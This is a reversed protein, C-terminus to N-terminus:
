PHMRIGQSDTRDPAQACRPRPRAFRPRPPGAGRIWLSNGQVDLKAVRPGAQVRRGIEPVRRRIADEINASLDPVEIRVRDDAGRGTQDSVSKLVSRDGLAIVAADIAHHRHDERTKRNDDSLIGNLRWKGRLLATLGGRNPVIQEVGELCGLYHVASRAIYANDTLQRAVFDNEGEFRVMADPGFRWAKNSPLRQALRSVTEWRIGYKVYADSAFAEHPTRNGKLRNAWRLAVTLNAMSDDLTRKFPLLHEIEADGNLLQAFSIPKGSFPCRRALETEGLEEWLRVKKVDLASPVTIRHKELEDRIRKNEREERAQRVTIEDRQKRSRKLNRSLEVHIEAPPGGFRAILDNVVRRLSNLAVHVTPNNIKGFHVEPQSSSDATPDGGLMSGRLIEGYYPLLERDGADPRHSHHLPTGEDDALEGVAEWYMLGQDQMVPVIAEMFRRSVSATARSLRLKGLAEIANRELGFVEALRSGFTAPDAEEQLATFIDDLVGGDGEGACRQEWLTTLVPDDSLMKAIGHNRLGKRKGDEYNFRVCDPFLLSGDTRKQKRLSDFKVESKRTLLLDLVAVCQEADLPHEAFNEDFWKLSNLEQYIRFDHGIPTDRWHRQEEPFFECRGREVPKLPWQFLVYRDRLRKWDETRLRHHPAQRERIADFEAAYMSRDPYFKGGGRFRVGAPKSGPRQQGKEANFTEWQFQGLTKGNLADHLGAIRDKLNSDDDDSREIRNSKFGRRLGLHFLVRGLEYPELTRELGEARLRYPNFRDPDAVRAPTQFLEDRHKGPDPMLGLRVLERMLARLRAKRRDRNRRMGRALRRRVANSDGVRGRKAPERGEPFIYVGGGLSEEVRWRRGDREVKFAWWGLSNTGLDIGLRWSM